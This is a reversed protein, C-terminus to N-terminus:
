EKRSPFTYRVVALAAAVVSTGYFAYAAILVEPIVQFRWAGTRPDTYFASGATFATVSLVCAIMLAILLWALRGRRRIDDEFGVVAANDRRQRLLTMRQTEDGTRVIEEDEPTLAYITRRAASM